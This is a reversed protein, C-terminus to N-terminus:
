AKRLWGGPNTSFIWKNEIPDVVFEKHTSLYWKLAEDPGDKGGVEPYNTDEVVMYQGKTVIPSYRMLERKVHRRTHNSDLTVM